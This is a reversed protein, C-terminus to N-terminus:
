RTGTVHEGAIYGFTLGPGITSGGGWYANATPSAICNGAGYLGPIPADNWDLIQAHRNIVPGGNTDLTGAALIIAYYPGQDSLPYMTHNKSDKDPWAVGPVVPPFTTWERDYSTEGRHFDEDVGARAFGNFRQITEKLSPLFNADLSFGGTHPALSLLRAKLQSELDQLSKSEILYPMKQGGVPFPPYGQWLTATRADFLMFTLM